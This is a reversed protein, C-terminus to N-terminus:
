KCWLDSLPGGFNSKIIKWHKWPYDEQISDLTILGDFTDATGPCSITLSVDLHTRGSVIKADSVVINATEYQTGLIRSICIESCGNELEYYSDKDWCRQITNIDGIEIADIYHKVVLAPARDFSQTCTDYFADRIIKFGFYLVALLLLSSFIILNRRQAKRKYVADM